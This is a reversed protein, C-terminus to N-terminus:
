WRATVQTYGGAPKPGRHSSTQAKKEGCIDRCQQRDPRCLPGPPRTPSSIVPTRVTAGWTNFISVSLACCSRIMELIMRADIRPRPSNDPAARIVTMAIDICLCLFCRDHVGQVVCTRLRWGCSRGLIPFIVRVVDEAREIRTLLWRQANERLIRIPMLSRGVLSRKGAREL